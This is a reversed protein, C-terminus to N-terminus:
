FGIRLRVRKANQTLPTTTIIKDDPSKANENKYLTVLPNDQQHLFKHSFATVADLNAQTFNDVLYQMVKTDIDLVREEGESLLFNYFRNKKEESGQADQAAQLIQEEFSLNPYSENLTNQIYDRNRFIEEIRSIKSKLYEETNQNIEEKQQAITHLIKRNSTNEAIVSLM